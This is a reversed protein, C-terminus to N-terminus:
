DQLPSSIRQTEALHSTRCLRLFQALSTVVKAQETASYYEGLPFTALHCLMAYACAPLRHCLGYSQGISAQNVQAGVTAEHALPAVTRGYRALWERVPQGSPIGWTQRPPM